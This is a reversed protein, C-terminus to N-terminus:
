DEEPEDPEDPNEFAALLRAMPNELITQAHNLSEEKLEDDTATIGKRNIADRFTTAWATDDYQDINRLGEAVAHLYLAPFLTARETSTKGRARLGEIRKKDRPCVHIKLRQEDLHVSFRGPALKSQSVLDIVSYPSYTEELGVELQRAVALISGPHVNFGDPRFERFEEAHEESQFPSIEEQAVIYSYLQLSTCYDYANLSYIEEDNNTQLAERTATRKSEVVTLFAARRDQILTTLFASTLNYKVTFNVQETTSLVASPVSVRFDQGPYDDTLPALVPHPLQRPNWKTM